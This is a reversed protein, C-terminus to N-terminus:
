DTLHDVWFTPALRLAQRLIECALLCLFVDKMYTPGIMDKLGLMHNGILFILLVLAAWCGALVRGNAARRAPFLFPLPSILVALIAPQVVYRPVAKFEDFYGYVARLHDAIALAALSVLVILVASIRGSRYLGFLGILLALVAALFLGDSAAFTLDGIVPSGEYNFPGFRYSISVVWLCAILALSLSFRALLAAATKLGCM